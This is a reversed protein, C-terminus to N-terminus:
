TGNLLNSFQHTDMKKLNIGTIESLSALAHKLKQQPYKNGQATYYEHIADWSKIKGTKIKEKLVDVDDSPIL